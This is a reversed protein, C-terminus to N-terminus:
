TVIVTQQDVAVVADDKVIYCEVYHRGKYSTSETRIGRGQDRTIEGRLQRVAAAETGGNRVKWYVDYPPPANTTATFTLSRNKQVRNGHDALTYQRFGRLPV